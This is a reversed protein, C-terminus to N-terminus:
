ADLHTWQVKENGETYDDSHAMNGTQKKWKKPPKEAGFGGFKCAKHYLKTLISRHGLEKPRPDSSWNVLM